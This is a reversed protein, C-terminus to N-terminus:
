QRSQLQQLLQQAQVSFDTFSVNSPPNFVNSDKDWEQCNFKYKQNPDFQQSMQKQQDQNFASVDAKYGQQSGKQWVYQVNDKKIVYATSEKDSSSTTFEGYMNKDSSFYATGKNASEGDNVSYTCKLDTSRTVLDSISVSETKTQSARSQNEKTQNNKTDGSNSLLSYGTIGTILAAGVIAATVM